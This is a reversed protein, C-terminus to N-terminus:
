LGSSEMSGPAPRTLRDSDSMPMAPSKRSPRSLRALLRRWLRSLRLWAECALLLTWLPASLAPLYYISAVMLIVTLLLHRRVSRRLSYWWLMSAQRLPPRYQSLLVLEWAQSPPLSAPTVPRSEVPPLLNLLPSPLSDM